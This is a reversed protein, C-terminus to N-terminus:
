LSVILALVVTLYHSHSALRQHRVRGGLAVM